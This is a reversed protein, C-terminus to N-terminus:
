SVQGLVAKVRELTNIRRGGLLHAIKDIKFGQGALAHILDSEDKSGPEPPVNGGPFMTGGEQSRTGMDKESMDPVELVRSPVRGTLVPVGNGLAPVIYKEELEPKHLNGVIVTCQRPSDESVGPPLPDLKVTAFNERLDGQGEIGLSRVFVSHSMLVLFLGAKRGEMGIQMLKKSVEPQHAVLAPIEDVALTVPDFQSTGTGRQRYRNDMLDIMSQITQAISVFNRGGGIVTCHGPWTAGDDHPDLVYATQRAQLLYRATHTKGRGTAGAILVHRDTFMPLPQLQPMPLSPTPTEQSTMPVFSEGHKGLPTFWQARKSIERQLEVALAALTTYLQADPPSLQPMTAAGTKQEIQLAPGFMKRPQILSLGTETEWTFSEAGPIWSRQRRATDIFMEVLRFALFIAVGALIFVALWGLVTVVKERALQAAEAEAQRVQAQQTATANMQIQALNVARATSTALHAEQTAIAQATAAQQTVQAEYYLATATAHSYLVQATATAANDTSAQTQAQVLIAAENARIASEATATMQQYATNLAHEGAAQLTYPDSPTPVCAAILLGLFLIISTILMLLMIRRRM